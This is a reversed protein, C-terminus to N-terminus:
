TTASPHDLLLANLRAPADLQIWHGAGDIQQYRWSDTVLTVDNTAIRMM